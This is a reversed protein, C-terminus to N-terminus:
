QQIVDLESIYNIDWAMLSIYDSFRFKRMYTQNFYQSLLAYFLLLSDKKICVMVSSPMPTASVTKGDYNALLGNKLSYVCDVKKDLNFESQLETLKKGVVSLSASEFAFIFYLIPWDQYENGYVLTPRVIMGEDYFAKKVLKKVSQMNELCVELEQLSLNTKVEIVGYVCEVPIIKIEKSEFFIPTRAADHIIIDLQKSKNGFSDILFGTSIELNRPLRPRLFTNVVNEISQGISASHNLATRVQDLDAKLSKEIQSFTEIIKMKKSNELVFDRILILSNMDRVKRLSM